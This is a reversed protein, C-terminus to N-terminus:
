FNFLCGLVLMRRGFYSEINRKNTYDSDYSYGFLNRNNMVNLAELYAILQVTGFLQGFYTLRLDLRTYDPYRESNDNGYIPKYVNYESIYDSGIIPTYPRGTAYKYNLGLQWKDSFNYKAVVAFNHTIDFSSSTFETQDMWKRKTSIFGYSIWGNINFPGEGKIILDIGKAFGYGNNDYNLIDNELPLNIYKKYYAEIRMEQMKGIKRNFSLVLHEAKMGKLNPNGDEGAFLRPDPLQHFIGGSVAVSTFDDFKFGLNLRPDFWHLNQDPFFDGRLGATFSLNKIGFIDGLLAETYIGLRQSILEANINSQEANDSIDYDYLPIVGDFRSTRQEAEIGFNLQTKGSLTLEANSSLIMTYDKKKLDLIGLKWHNNYNNFSLGTKIFINPSFLDSHQIGFLINGSNGHFNGNYEAREVQVGQEDQALLFFLKMRGTSSYKHTYSGSLDESTPSVVMRDSGGNLWFIPKTFNKRGNLRLGSKNEIFPYSVNFSFSAMSIGVSYSEAMPENVTEIDVVGSLANGYKASFGGSSFFMGRLSSTNLNSFLGGYASEYTYPHYVPAQDIITVTEIPDGGRVYLQASEAVQTMGPLTKLSQFLDAAGGPTTYVDRSSLVVGKEKVSSYSSTTVVVSNMVVEASEMVLSLNIKDSESINIEIESKSYGVMSAIIKHNGTQKTVFKFEGQENTMAGDTTNLLYVNVFALLNSESDTVRGYIQTTQQGYIQSLNLLFIFMLCIKIIWKM